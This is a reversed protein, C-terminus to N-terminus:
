IDFDGAAFDSALDATVSVGGLVALQTVTDLDTDSAADTAIYWLHVEDATGDGDTDAKFIALGEDSKAMTIAGAGAQIAALDAAANGSTDVFTTGTIVLVDNDGVLQGGSAKELINAADGDTNGADINISIRDDSATSNTTFDTITDIGGGSTVFFNIDVGAGNTITDAGAGGTISDAGAGGSITDNGVGGTLTDDGKNGTLTDNGDGGTVVDNNKTGTVTDNGTGTTISLIGTHTTSNNGTVTMAVTSTSLDAVFNGNATAELASVDVSALLTSTVTGLDITNAGTGVLSTMDTASLTAIDFSFSTSDFTLTEEDNMIMDESAHTATAVVTLANATGDVLRGFTVDIDNTDMAALGLTTVEDRANSVTVFEDTADNAATTQALNIRTFGTNAGFNAMNVASTAASAIANTFTVTEFGSVGPHLVASPDASVALTDTGEGGTITFDTAGTAGMTLTDNGAGMDVTVAGVDAAEMASIDFSDNGAGGTIAKATTNATAVADTVDFDELVATVGATSGSASFTTAKGFEATTGLDLAATANITVTTSTNGLGGGAVMDSAAGSANIILTEYGGDADTAGGVTVAAGASILNLTLSDATGALLADKYEFTHAATTNNVTMEALSTMNAFSMTNALAGVSTISTVGTILDATATSFNITSNTTPTLTVNEVGTIGGTAPTLTAGVTATLTDTGDGGAITDASTLALITDVRAGSITDNGSTGTITDVGVTLATSIPTVATTTTTTTTTATSTTTTTAADDSGCAALSLAMLSVGGARAAKANKKEWVAAFKEAVTSQRNSAHMENQFEGTSIMNM